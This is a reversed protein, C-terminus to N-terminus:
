RDLVLKEFVDGTFSERDFVVGLFFELALNRFENRLNSRQVAAPEFNAAALTTSTGLGM